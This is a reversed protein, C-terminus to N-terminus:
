GYLAAYEALFSDLSGTAALIGYVVALLILAVLVACWISRAYNRRNINKDSFSFVILCIFGVFPIAFLIDLGVYAWPSLPRYKAPLPAAQAPAPQVAAPAPAPSPEALSAGCTSCFKQDAEVPAGCKPCNM